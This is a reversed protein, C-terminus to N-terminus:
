CALSSSSFCDCCCCVLRHLSNTTQNSQTNHREEDHDIRAQIPTAKSLTTKFSFHFKDIFITFDITHAAYALAREVCTYATRTRARRCHCYRHRCHWLSVFMKLVIFKQGIGSSWMTSQIFKNKVLVEITKLHCNHQRSVSFIKWKIWQGSWENNMWVLLTIYNLTTINQKETENASWLYFLVLFM